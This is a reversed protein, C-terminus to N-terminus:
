SLKKLADALLVRAEDMVRKIEDGEVMPKLADPDMISVEFGGESQQVLVVLILAIALILHISLVVAVM